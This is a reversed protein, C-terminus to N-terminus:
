KRIGTGILKVPKIYKEKNILKGNKYIEVGIKPIVKNKTKSTLKQTNSPKTIIKKVSVSRKNINNNRIGFGSLKVSPIKIKKKITIKDQCELGYISGNESIDDVINQQKRKKEVKKEVPITTKYKKKILKKQKKNILRKKIINARSQIPKNIDKSPKKTKVKIDNIPIDIVYSQRETQIAKEVSEEEEENDDEETQIQKVHKVPKKIGKSPKKTKIRIDDIPIDYCIPQQEQQEETQTGIESNKSDISHVSDVKTITSLMPFSENNKKKIQPPIERPKELEDDDDDSSHLDSIREKSIKVSNSKTNNLQEDKEEIEEEENEIDNNEPQPPKEPSPEDSISSNHSNVENIKQPSIKEDINENDNFEEVKKQYRRPIKTSYTGFKSIPIENEEIKNYIPLLTSYAKSTDLDKQMEAISSVVRRYQTMIDQYYDYYGQKLDKKKMCVSDYNELANILRDEENRNYEILKKIPEEDWYLFEPKDIFIEYCKDLPIEEIENENKNENNEEENENYYINM